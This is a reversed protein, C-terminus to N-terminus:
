GGGGEGGLNRAQAGFEDGQMESPLVDQPMPIRREPRIRDAHGIVGALANVFAEFREAGDEDM